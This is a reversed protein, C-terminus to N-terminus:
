YNLFNSKNQFIEDFSPKMFKLRDFVHSTHIILFIILWYIPIFHHNILKQSNWSKETVWIKRSILKPSDLLEIVAIQIIKPSQIKNIQYVEINLFHLFDCFTFNLAEWNTLIAIKSARSEGVKIERLILTVSFNQLKERHLRLKKLILSVRFAIVFRNLSRKTELFSDNASKNRLWKNVTKFLLKVYFIWCKVFLLCGVKLAKPIFNTKWAKWLWFLVM